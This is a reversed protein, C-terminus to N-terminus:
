PRTQGSGRVVNKYTTLERVGVPGRAHLRGTSIGIEAGLGFEGGDAYQTSANHMIIASDVGNIFRTAVSDDETIIADTHHSSYTAIHAIAADVGDVIAVSLIPALFETSWDDDGALSLRGDIAIARQDGRLECGADILANAVLPLFERAIAQDILLTESAGCVSTRRMKSNVAVAVAKDFDAAGDVFVTNMGDMHSLVPAKAERQVRAVLSKGGRPVILDITGGLGELIAGVYARDTSNIFQAVGNPFGYSAMADRFCAFLAASTEICESGGRLIAANGSKLALAAADITVNPRSEYIIGLVGIPARLREIVLGNPRDWQEISEGIPDDFAAIDELAAAIGDIRGADLVLRDVMATSMGGAKAKAVEGANTAIIADRREQINAAALRLVANKDDASANRNFAAGARADDALKQLDSQEPM